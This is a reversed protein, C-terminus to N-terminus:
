KLDSPSTITFDYISPMTSKAGRYDKNDFSITEDNRLLKGGTNWQELANKYGEKDYVVTGKDDVFTGYVGQDIKDFIDMQKNAVTNALMQTPTLEKVSGSSSAPAKGIVQTYKTEGTVKDVGVVTINRNEDTFQIVSLNADEAMGKYEVGDINISREAPLDKLYNLVSLRNSFDVQGQQVQFQLYDFLRNYRNNEDQLTFQLINAANEKQASLQGTVNRLEAQLSLKKPYLDKAREAVLADIYSQPAEGEVEKRIDNELALESADLKDLEEQIEGARTSLASIEPTQLLQKYTEVASPQQAFDIVTGDSTIATKDTLTNNKNLGLIAEIQSQLTEQKTSERTTKDAKNQANNLLDYTQSAIDNISNAPDTPKGYLFTGTPDTKIDTFNARQLETTPYKVGNIQEYGNPMQFGQSAPINLKQGAYIKNPDTIQPNALMLDAISVGFQKSLKTLNDGYNITYNQSAPAQQTPQPQQVPAPTTSAQPTPTTPAPAPAPAPAPQPASVPPNASPAKVSYRNSMLFGSAPDQLQDQTFSITKGTTNDLYEVGAEAKFQDNAM